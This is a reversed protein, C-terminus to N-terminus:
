KLAKEVDDLNDKLARGAEVFIDKVGMQGWSEITFVVDDTYEIEVGKYDKLDEEDLDCAVANKVKLKGDFEFVAPYFRALEEKKEGEGSIKIKPVNKYFFLGPVFKAHEKGTGVAAKAVVELEQGDVLNVIPMDEFVVGDGLEGSLVSVEEDKKSKAKLKMEIMEGKKVKKNKLPILGLRHAIYEDYLSSDNKYIDVEEIALVPINNVSRRLANALAVDLDSQFVIKGEDQNILKMAM